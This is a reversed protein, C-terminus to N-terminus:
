SPASCRDRLTLSDGDQLARFSSDLAALRATPPEPSSIVSVTGAPRPHHGRLFLIGFLLASVAFAAVVLPRGPKM